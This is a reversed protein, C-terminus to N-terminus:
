QVILILPVTHTVGAATASITLNYTGSATPTTNTTGGSSPITRGTGCGALLLLSLIALRRRKRFFLPLVGALTFTPILWPLLDRSNHTAAIGTAVVASVTIPGGLSVTTPTVVCTTHAPAGTCALAATASVSSLSSLLLPYTASGGAGSLTATTPGNPALTFDVGTGALPVTQTGASDAATLTGPRPGAATPRFFV